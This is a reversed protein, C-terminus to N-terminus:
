YQHHTDFSSSHITCPQIVCTYMKEGCLVGRLIMYYPGYISLHEMEFAFIHFSAEPVNFCVNCNWIAPNVRCEDSLCALHSTHSTLTLLINQQQETTSRILFNIKITTFIHVAATITAPATHTGFWCGLYTNLGLHSYHSTAHRTDVQKANTPLTARTWSTIKWVKSLKHNKIGAIVYGRRDGAKIGRSSPAM